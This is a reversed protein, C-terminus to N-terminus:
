VPTLLSRYQFLSKATEAGTMSKIFEQQQRSHAVHHDRWGEVRQERLQYWLELLSERCGSLTSDCIDGRTDHLVSVTTRLATCVFVTPPAAILLAPTAPSLLNQCRRGAYSKRLHRKRPNEAKGARSM